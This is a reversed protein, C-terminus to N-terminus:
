RRRRAPRPGPEPGAEHCGQCVLMKREVWTEALNGSWGCQCSGTENGRLAMAFDTCAWRSSHVRVGDLAAVAFPREDGVGLALAALGHRACSRQDGIDGGWNAVVDAPRPCFSSCAVIPDRPEVTDTVILGAPLGANVINIDSHCETEV